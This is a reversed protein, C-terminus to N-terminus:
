VGVTSALPPSRKERITTFNAFTETLHKSDRPLSMFVSAGSLDNAAISPCLTWLKFLHSVFHPTRQLSCRSCWRPQELSGLREQKRSKEQVMNKPGTIAKYSIANQKCQDPFTEAAQSWSNQCAYVCVGFTSYRHIEVLFLKRIAFNSIM